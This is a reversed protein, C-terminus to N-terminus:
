ANEFPDPGCEPKRKDLWLNWRQPDPGTAKEFCPENVLGFYQWRNDRSYHQSPHSSLTKLFDLAGASQNGLVDWLRDNGATWVLWTNRGQIEELGLAVPGNRDQDMDHFYDEDAAQFSSADRVPAALLAEDLIHGSRGYVYWLAAAVVALLLVAVAVV